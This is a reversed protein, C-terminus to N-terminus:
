KEPINRPTSQYYFILLLAFIENVDLRFVAIVCIYLFEVFYFCFTLTIYALTYM